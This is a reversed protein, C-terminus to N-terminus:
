TEKGDIGGINVCQCLGVARDSVCSRSPNDNFNSISFFISLYFLLYRTHMPVPEQPPAVPQLPCGRLSCDLCGTLTYHHQHLAVARGDCWAAGITVIPELSELTSFQVAFATGRVCSWMGYRLALDLANVGYAVLTTGGALSLAKHTRQHLHRPHLLHHYAAARLILKYIERPM